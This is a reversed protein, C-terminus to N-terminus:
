YTFLSKSHEIQLKQNFIELIDWIWTLNLRQFAYPLIKRCIYFVNWINVFSYSIQTKYM